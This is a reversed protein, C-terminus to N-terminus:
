EHNAITPNKLTWHSKCSRESLLLSAITIQM